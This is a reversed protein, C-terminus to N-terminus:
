RRAERENLSCVAYGQAAPRLSPGPRPILGAGRGAPPAEVWFLLCDRDTEEEQGEGAPQISVTWHSAGPGVPQSDKLLWQQWSSTGPPLPRLVAITWVIVLHVPSTQWHASM